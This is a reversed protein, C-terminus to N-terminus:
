DGFRFKFPIRPGDEAEFDIPGVKGVRISGLASGAYVRGDHTEITVRMPADPDDQGSLLGLLLVALSELPDGIEAPAKASNEVVRNLGILTTDIQSLPRMERDLSLTGRWSAQLTPSRLTGNPMEIRGGADRWAAMAANSSPEPLPGHVEVEGSLRSIHQFTSAASPGFVAGSLEAARLNVADFRWRASPTARGDSYVGDIRLSELVNIPEDAGARAARINSLEARLPLARGGTLWLEAVAYAATFSISPMAEGDVSDVAVEAYKPWEIVLVTPRFPSARATMEHDFWTLTARAGDARHWTYVYSPNEIELVLVGPFGRRKIEGHSINLTDSNRSAIAERLQSELHSAVVLWLVGYAAALAILTMGAILAARGLRSKPM